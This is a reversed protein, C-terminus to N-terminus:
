RTERGKIRGVVITAVVAAAFLWTSGAVAEGFLLAAFGITFFVQLLQVQAVRGIGGPGAQALGNYWAFFGALQSVLTVYAFGAWAPTSADLPTTLALWAAIPLTVPLAVVLAWLIAQVGGIAAALKAGTAYGLAGLAVAALMWVDGSGFSGGGDRLAFAAVLLSGLAACIWFRAAQRERFWLAAALATAFPLAGVIIAGHNAPMSRLALSSCLPFGIVIGLASALLWWRHARSPLPAKVARLWLAALLGAIAMRGFAVFWADLQVVALRTMPLTLSFALVGVLGLLLGILESPGRHVAGRAVYAAHSDLAAKM